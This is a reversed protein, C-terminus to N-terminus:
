LEVPGVNFRVANIGVFTDGRYHRALQRQSTAGSGWSAGIIAATLSSGAPGAPWDRNPVIGSVDVLYGEGRCVLEHVREAVEDVASGKALLGKRAATRCGVLYDRVHRRKGTAELKILEPFSYNMLPGTDRSYGNRGAGAALTRRRQRWGAM